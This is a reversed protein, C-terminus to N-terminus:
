FPVYSVTFINEEHNNTHSPVLILPNHSDLFENIAKSFPAMAVGSQKWLIHHFRLLRISFATRPYKPSGGIYGMQILRVQDLHCDCFQIIEQKRAELLTPISLDALKSNM